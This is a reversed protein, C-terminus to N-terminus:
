HAVNEKEIVIGPLNAKSIAAYGGEIEWFNKIGRSALISAAIMSRYGGQCHLFFPDSTSISDSWENIDALPKLSASAIHGNDFESPKRVDIVQSEPTFMEAMKEATIRQIKEFPRGEAIWSAMGDSLIGRVHDFGIRSLRTVAEVEKGEECILLLPQNVDALLSGVWPAFDGNLGVHIAGPIFAKCFDGAPRTDLIRIGEEKAAKEFDIPSLSKLGSSIVEDISKYGMKNLGVNQPFYAPPMSLGDTVAKIFSVKDPQNLAYNMKKQNGLTDVTEKMMNKGCASGAGHAPYVILDDSLPLVKKYLSEYLLGALDEQTIHEAKQALDPRGVDGLFLTDGTFICHDKGNEDQLLYISSEMTHGPTHIVKVKLKGVKFEQNDTAIIAEFGPDALPGYVIGAGTARSLDIHGSVFDAHFHTEFVYKLKVNDKRLRALYPEIERLPDIIFAENESVVYYAGQALCGTYIQEIKM